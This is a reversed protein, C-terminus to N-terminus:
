PSIKKALTMLPKQARAWDRTDATFVHVEATAPSITKGFEKSLEEINPQHTVVLVIDSSPQVVSLIDRARTTADVDLADLKNMPVDRNAVRNFVDRVRGATQTARTVPSYLIEDPVLGAVAIQAASSDAQREGEANLRLLDYSGHRMLLITKM